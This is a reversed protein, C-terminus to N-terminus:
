RNKWAIYKGGWIGYVIMVIGLLVTPRAVHGHDLYKAWAETFLMGGLFIDVWDIGMHIHPVTKSRVDRALQPLARALSIFVAACVVIESVALLRHWGEVGERISHIGEQILVTGPVAHQVKMLVKAVARRRARDPVVPQSM